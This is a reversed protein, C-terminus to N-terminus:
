NTRDNEIVLYSKLLRKMYTKMRPNFEKEMYSGDLVDNGLIRSAVQPTNIIFNKTGFITAICLDIDADKIFSGNTVGEEIVKHFELVNVMLIGTIKETIDPHKSLSVERNVLKHFCSNAVVRDIYKDICGALKDWSSLSEDETINQLLTKFSNIKREFIAIFLGEKSGFYYNLMAMNVNAEGSILRTSAGDYGLESFVKEAVDLIHDKKDTKEKEMESVFKIL